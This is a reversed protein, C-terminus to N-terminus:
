LNKIERLRLFQLSRINGSSFCPATICKEKCPHARSNDRDTSRDLTMDLPPALQTRRTKCSNKPWLARFRNEIQTPNKLNTDFFSAFRDVALIENTVPQRRYPGFNHIVINILNGPKKINKNYKVAILNSFSAREASKIWSPLAVYSNSFIMIAALSKFTRCTKQLEESSQTLITELPVSFLTSARGFKAYITTTALFLAVLQKLQLPPRRTYCHRDSPSM